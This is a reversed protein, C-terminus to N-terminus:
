LALLFYMLVEWIRAIFRIGDSFRAIFRIGDSGGIHSRHIWYFLLYALKELEKKKIIM